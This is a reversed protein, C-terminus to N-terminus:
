SPKGNLKVIAYVVALVLVVLAIVIIYSRDEKQEYNYFRQLAPVSANLWEQYLNQGEKDTQIIGGVSTFVDGVAQAVASVPDM